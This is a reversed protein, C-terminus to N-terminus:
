KYTNFVIQTKSPFDAQNISKWESETGEFYVYQLDICSVFNMGGSITTITKPIYITKLGQLVGFFAGSLISYVQHGEYSKPVVIEGSEPIFNIGSVFSSSTGSPLNYKLVTQKDGYVTISENVHYNSPVKSQKGSDLYWQKCGYVYDSSLWSYNVLLKGEPVKKTEVEEGDVVFKVDVNQRLEDPMEYLHYKIENSGYKFSFTYKDDQISTPLTTSFSITKKVDCDLNVQGFSMGSVSYEAENSERVLQAKEYKFEKTKTNKNTLELSFNVNHNDTYSYDKLNTFNFQIEDYTFSSKDSYAELKSGDNDGGSTSCGSLVTALVILSLFMRNKM